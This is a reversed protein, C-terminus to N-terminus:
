SLEITLKENVVEFKYGSWAPNAAQIKGGGVFITCFTKYQNTLTILRCMDERGVPRYVGPNTKVHEFDVTHKPAVVFEFKM